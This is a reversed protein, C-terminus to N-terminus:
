ETIKRALTLLQASIKLNAKQAAANNVEMVIKNREVLLNVM